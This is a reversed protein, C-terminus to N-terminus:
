LNRTLGPIVFDSAFKEIRSLLKIQDKKSTKSFYFTTDIRITDSLLPSRTYIESGKKNISNIISTDNVDRITKIIDFSAEYEHEKINLKYHWSKGIDTPYFDIGEM